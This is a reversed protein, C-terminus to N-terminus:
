QGGYTHGNRPAPPLPLATAFHGTGQWTPYPYPHPWAGVPQEPGPWSGSGTTHRTGFGEFRFDEENSRDFPVARFLRRYEACLSDYIPTTSSEPARVYALRM